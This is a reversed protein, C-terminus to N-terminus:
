TSTQKINSDQINCLEILGVYPITNTQPGITHYFTESTDVNEIFTIHPADGTFENHQGIGSIGVM